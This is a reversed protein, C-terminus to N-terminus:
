VLRPNEIPNISYDLLKWQVRGIRENFRKQQIWKLALRHTLFRLKCEERQGKKPGVMYLKNFTLETIERLIQKM